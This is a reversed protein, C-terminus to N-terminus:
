LNSNTQTVLYLNDQPAAYRWFADTIDGIRYPFVWKGLTYVAEVYQSPYEPNRYHALEGVAFDPSIGQYGIPMPVLWGRGTKVSEYRDNTEKSGEEPPLNHVTAVELLGDLASAQPQAKQLESSISSLEMQADMLVFGPLIARTLEAKEDADFWRVGGIGMVSGGALRQAMLLATVENQLAIPNDKLGRYAQQDAVVEVILSVTLHVKGEEVIGATKGDKKIPNRSQNFTYDAYPGPQYRQVDCRHSAILVGGLSVGLDAPLKRDLAHVAGVFGTIAPFGYTLPSSIANANQVEIRDLLLYSTFTM